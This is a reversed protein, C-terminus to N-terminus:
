AAWVCASGRWSLDMQWGGNNKVLLSCTGSNDTWYCVAARSRDRNFGVPSFVAINKRNPTWEEPAVLKYEPLRFKRELLLTKGRKLLYDDTIPRYIADHDPGPKACLEFGKTEQVIMWGSPRPGKKELLTSYVDYFDKEEDFLLELRPQSSRKAEASKIQNAPIKVPAILLVLTAM